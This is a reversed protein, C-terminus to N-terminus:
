KELGLKKLLDIFRPDSRLPDFRPDVKAYTLRTNHQEYALSLIKPSLLEDSFHRWGGDARVPLPHAPLPICALVIALVLQLRVSRRKVAQSM